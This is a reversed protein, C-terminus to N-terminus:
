SMKKVLGSTQSSALAKKSDGSSALASMAAPLAAAKKAKGFAEKTKTEILEALKEPEITPDEKLLRQETIVAYAMMAENEPTDSNYWTKNRELFTDFAATKRAEDIVTDHVEETKDLSKLEDIKNRAYEYADIDRSNKAKELVQAYQELAADIAAKEKQQQFRKLAKVSDKVESLTKKSERLEELIRRERLFARYSTFSDPDGEYEERPKWGMAKAQEMLEQE